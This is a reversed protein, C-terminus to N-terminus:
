SSVLGGRTLGLPSRCDEGLAEDATEQVAGEGYREDRERAFDEYSDLSAHFRSDYSSLEASVSQPLKNSSSFLLLVLVPILRNLPYSLPAM